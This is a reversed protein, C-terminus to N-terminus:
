VSFKKAIDFHGSVTAGKGQNATQSLYDIKVSAFNLTVTETFSDDSSAAGGSNVSSIMVTGSMTIKLYEVHNGKGGGVKIFTLVSEGQDKGDFTDQFLTPTAADVYKTITLDHVDASGAGAGTSRHSTGSQTLGWNWSLVDIEGEHKTIVSEGKLNKKDPGLRLCISVAM